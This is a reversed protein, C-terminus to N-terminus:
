VQLNKLHIQDKLINESITILGNRQLHLTTLNTLGNFISESLEILRNGHLDLEELNTLRSFINEPLGMFYNENLGLIRLNTLGNFVSGSLEKFRNNDLYLYELKTLDNFIREPLTTLRNKGLKLEILNNLGQFINESLTTLHNEHLHLFELKSLGAFIHEPLLILNNEPLTLSHNGTVVLLNLDNLGTFINEPLEKLHNIMVGLSDGEINSIVSRGILQVVSKPCSDIKIGDIGCLNPENQRFNFSEYLEDVSVNTCRFYLGHWVDFRVREVSIRESNKSCEFSYKPNTKCKCNESTKEPCQLWHFGYITTSHILILVFVAAISSGRVFYNKM